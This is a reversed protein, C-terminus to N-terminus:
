RANHRFCRCTAVIPIHRRFRSSEAVQKAEYTDKLATTGDVCVIKKVLDGAESLRQHEWIRIVPWRQADFAANLTANRKQKKAIKAKWWKANSKPLGKRNPCGCWFWEGAFNAAKCSLFTIDLKYKPSPLPRMDSGYRLGRAHLLRCLHIKPVTGAIRTASILQSVAASRQTPTTWDLRM